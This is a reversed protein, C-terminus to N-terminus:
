NWYLHDYYKKRWATTDQSRESLPIDSKDKKIIPKIEEKFRHKAYLETCILGILILICFQIIRDKLFNLRPDLKYKM